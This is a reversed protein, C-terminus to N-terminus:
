SGGLGAGRAALAVARRFPAAPQDVVRRSSGTFIAARRSSSSFHFVRRGPSAFLKLIFPHDLMALISREMLIENQPGPTERRDALPRTGPPAARPERERARARERERCGTRSSRPRARASSRSSWARRRARSSCAASRAAGPTRLVEVPLAPDPGRPVRARSPRTPRAARCRAPRRPSRPSERVGQVLPGVREVEPSLLEAVSGLLATFDDRALTLVLVRESHAVISATRVDDKLLAKEGFIDGAALTKVRTTGRITDRREHLQEASRLDRREYPPAARDIHM